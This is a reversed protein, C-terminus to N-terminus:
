PTSLGIKEDIILNVDFVFSWLREIPLYAPSQQNEESVMVVTNAQTENGLLCVNSAVHISPQISFGVNLSLKLINNLM